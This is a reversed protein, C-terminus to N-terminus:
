VLIAFSWIIMELSKLYFSLHVLIPWGIFFFGYFHVGGNIVM